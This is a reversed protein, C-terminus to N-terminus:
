QVLVLKRNLVRDGFRLRAVFVGSGLEASHWRLSHAGAARNEDLVTALLQGTLSYISLAVPGARDLDFRITTEGNFPNPYNQQLSFGLPADATREHVATSTLFAAGYDNAPDRYMAHTHDTANGGLAQPAYEILVSPGQIRFGAAAGPATPGFWAFYLQDLGAEIKDMELRAHAENLMGIRQRVLELLVARQEANLDAAAIGERRPTIDVADPGFALDAPEQDVVAEELQDPTLSGVLAFALDEEGGLQRIQRGDLFYDVPQGGTLSPSLTIRDGAITANIALHHGGFQWMWPATKSPEGLISLYFEDQGFVTRGGGSTFRLIEDGLVNDVVQQFGRESLTARLLAFAANKTQSDLDGLRLGSRAFIGTPLNSWRRRQDEDDFPFLFVAQERQDEDLSEILAQAADVVDEVVAAPTQAAAGGATLLIALLSLTRKM